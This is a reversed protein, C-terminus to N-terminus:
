VNYQEELYRFHYNGTKRTNNKCCLCINSSYLGLEEAAQKISEYTKNLEICYVRQKRHENTRARNDNARLGNKYAHIMNESNTCWELNSLNNNTKDCDIHNVQPKNEPNSIFTEAVLRHVKKIKAKKDISLVVCLYGRENKYQRLERGKHIRTAGSKCPIMQNVSKIKGTNSVLYIGNYLPHKKWVEIM